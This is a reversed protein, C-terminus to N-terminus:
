TLIFDPEYMENILVFKNLNFECTSAITHSSQPFVKDDPSFIKGPIDM